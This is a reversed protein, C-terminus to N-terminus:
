SYEGNYNTRCLHRSLVEFSTVTEEKWIRQLEDDM